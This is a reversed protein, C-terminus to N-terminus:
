ILCLQVSSTTVEMGSKMKDILSEITSDDIFTTTKTDNVDRRESPRSPDKSFM